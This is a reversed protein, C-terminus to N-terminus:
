ECGCEGGAGDVDSRVSAEYGSWRYRMTLGAVSGAFRVYHDVTAVRESYKGVWFVFGIAGVVLALVFAGVAINSARTEM